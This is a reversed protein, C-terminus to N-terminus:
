SELVALIDGEKLMVYEEGEIKVDTGGWKSFLVKDGKKVEPTIRKGEKDRRGPGVALVKGEQPKEKATDPIIIGGPTKEESELRSVIVQDHLPKINM